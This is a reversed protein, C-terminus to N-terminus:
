NIETMDEFLTFFNKNLPCNSCDTHQRLCITQYLDIVGQQCLANNLLRESRDTPVFFRLSAETLIQNNQLKPLLPINGSFWLIQDQYLILWPIIVNVFIDEIRSKGILQASKNIGLRFNKFHNWNSFLTFLQHFEQHFKSFTQVQQALNMLFRHPAWNTLKFFDWAGWIRREPSNLPRGVFSCTVPAAPMGSQWWLHWLQTLTDKLLPHIDTCSPDPLLSLTGMLLALRQQDSICQNLIDLNCYSALTKFTKKNNKYGFSEFLLEYLAQDPSSSQTLLKLRQSKQTLRHLGAHALLHQIADDCLQQWHHACQGQSIKQHKDYNILANYSLLQEWNEALHPVIAFTPISPKKQSSDEWVVHLIVQHYHNDLHHHHQFWDSPYRHIEINGNIWESDINLHANLFDPGAQNNWTGSSAIKLPRGDTLYLPKDFLQENWIIQLIKESPPPYVSNEKLLLQQKTQNQWRQYIESFHSM